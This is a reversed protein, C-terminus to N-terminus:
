GQGTRKIFRVVRIRKGGPCPAIQLEDSFRAIAGIGAGIGGRKFFKMPDLKGNADYGDRLATTLDFPPTEDQALILIGPGRLLDAVPGIEITGKVGYKRINSALESVVIALEECARVSFGLQRAVERLGRRVVFPAM